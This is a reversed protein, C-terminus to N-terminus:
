IKREKRTEKGKEEIMGKRGDAKSKGELGERGLRGL